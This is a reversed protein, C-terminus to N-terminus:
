DFVIVNRVAQENKVAAIADNIEDLSYTRTILEDLLLEGGHYRSVLRPIDTRITSTGMKSGLIRQNAAAITGPDIAAAVGSAPMGVIVVAGDPALLTPAQEIPQQAGVTVLVYDALRGKTIRSIERHLDSTISNVVHTAGFAQAIELKADTIDVAIIAGAEAFRAGQVANLGVGGTGIVVVTSGSTIKATNLAAGVGTIVGCALLSAPAMDIDRDIVVIQSHHVVARDAFCATGLGHGVPAGNTDTLPSPHTPLEGICAVSVGAACNRCTGCSKILTLVVPDGVSIGDVDGGVVEVVGAAEHGWVSPLSGGWAGDFFHIDSHCVASAKIRVQM